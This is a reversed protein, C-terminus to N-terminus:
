RVALVKNAFVHNQMVLKGRPMVQTFRRRVDPNTKHLLDDKVGAIQVNCCPLFSDVLKVGHDALEGLTLM